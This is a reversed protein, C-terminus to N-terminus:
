FKGPVLNRTEEHSPLPLMRAVNIGLDDCLVEYNGFRDFTVTLTWIKSDEFVVRDYVGPRRSYPQIQQFLVGPDYPWTDSSKEGTVTGFGIEFEKRIVRKEFGHLSYLGYHQDPKKMQHNFTKMAEVQYDVSKVPPEGARYNIKTRKVRQILYRGAPVNSVSNYFLYFLRNNRCAFAFYPHAPNRLDVKLATAAQFAETQEFREPDNGFSSEANGREIMVPRVQLAAVASEAQTDGWNM